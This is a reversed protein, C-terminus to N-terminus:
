VDTTRKEYVKVNLDRFGSFWILGIIVSITRPREFNHGLALGRFSFTFKSTRIMTKFKNKYLELYFSFFSLKVPRPGSSQHENHLSYLGLGGNLITAM